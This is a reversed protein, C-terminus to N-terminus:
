CALGGQGKSGFLRAPRYGLRDPAAVSRLRWRGVGSLPAFAPPRTWGAAARGASPSAFVRKPANAYVVEVGLLRTLAAGALM